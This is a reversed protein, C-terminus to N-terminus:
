TETDLEKESTKSMLISFIEILRNVNRKQKKLFKLELFEGYEPCFLEWEVWEKWDEVSLEDKKVNENMMM